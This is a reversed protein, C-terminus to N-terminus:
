YERLREHLLEAMQANEGTEDHRLYVYSEKAEASTKRVTEAWKDIGKEDYSENRLRYYAFDCTVRFVPKMDETEAICFGAGERELLSYTSDQLWSSHRFEFVRNWDGATESLFEGLLGLDQKSYPPLQFLVPGKRKGLLDLTASFKEAGEASGRGLKLIHTILRPAKFSFVFGPRTKESWGKVVERRPPAYFSSNVEVTDLRQSYHRLFEESPLEKPYFRPKWTAYSFGSVGVHARM